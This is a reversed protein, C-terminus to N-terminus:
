KEAERAHYRIVIDMAEQREALSILVDIEYRSVNELSVDQYSEDDFPGNYLFVSYVPYVPQDSESYMIHQAM